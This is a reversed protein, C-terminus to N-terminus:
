GSALRRLSKEVSAALWSRACPFTDSGTARSQFAVKLVRFRPRRLHRYPHGSIILIEPSGESNLDRSVRQQTLTTSTRSDSCSARPPGYVRTRIGNPVLRIENPNKSGPKLFM